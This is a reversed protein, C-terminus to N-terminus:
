LGSPNASVLGTSKVTELAARSRHFLEDLVTDKGLGAAKDFYRLALYTSLGGIALALEINKISPLVEIDLISDDEQAMIGIVDLHHISSTFSYIALYQHEIGIEKAMERLNKNSWSNGGKFRNKVRAYESSTKAVEAPDLIHFQEPVYQRLYEQHKHRKVWRFETFDTALAPNAQIYGVLVVSEFMGRAIKLAYSGCGNMALLLVSQYSNAVSLCVSRLLSITLNSAPPQVIEKTLAFFETATELVPACM